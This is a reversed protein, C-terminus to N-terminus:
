NHQKDAVCSLFSRESSGSWLWASSSLAWRYAHAREQQRNSFELDCCSRRSLSLRCVRPHRKFRSLLQLPQISPRRPARHQPQHHNSSPSFEQRFRCWHHMYGVWEVRHVWISSRFGNRRRHDESPRPLGVPRFGVLRLMIMRVQGPVSM